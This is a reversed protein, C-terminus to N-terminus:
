ARANSSRLLIVSPIFRRRPVCDRLIQDTNQARRTQEGASPARAAQADDPPRGELKLLLLNSLSVVASIGECTSTRVQLDGKAASLFWYMAIVAEDAQSMTQVSLDSVTVHVPPSSSLLVLRTALMCGPCRCFPPEGSRSVAGRAVAAAAARALRREAHDSSKLTLLLLDRWSGVAVAAAAGSGRTNSDSHVQTFGAAELALAVADPARPTIQVANSPCTLSFVTLADATLLMVLLLVLM